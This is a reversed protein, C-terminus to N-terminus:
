ADINRIGADNELFEIYIKGICEIEIKLAAVLRAFELQAVTCRGTNSDNIREKKTDNLKEVPPLFDNPDAHHATM